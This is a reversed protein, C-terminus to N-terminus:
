YSCHWLLWSAHKGLAGFLALGQWVAGLYGIYMVPGWNVSGTGAAVALTGWFLGIVAALDVPIYHPSGSGNTPTSGNPSPGPSPDRAAQAQFASNVERARKSSYGARTMIHGGFLNVIFIWWALPWEIADLNAHPYYTTILTVLTAPIHIIAAFVLLSSCPGPLFSPSGKPENRYIGRDRWLRHLSIYMICLTIFALCISTFALIPLHFIQVPSKTLFSHTRNHLIRALFLQWLFLFFHAVFFKFVSDSAVERVTSYGAPDDATPTHGLMYVFDLQLAYAAIWYILVMGPVARFWNQDKEHRSYHIFVHALKAGGSLLIALLAIAQKGRMSGEPLERPEILTQENTTPAPVGGITPFSSSGYTRGPVKLLPQQPGNKNNQDYAM